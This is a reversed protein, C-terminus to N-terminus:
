VSAVPIADSTGLRAGGASMATAAVFARPAPLPIATEFGTRRATAVPQLATASAGGLVVWTAVETAGNWSAYATVGSAAAAVTVVPRDAPRASWPFRFARYSGKGDFTGDLLLRGDADFETFRPVNGWGVFANGNAMLRVSGQSSSLVRAPHVWARVLAASMAREDVDLLIGRSATEFQPPPGDAGDDYITMRGPGQWRADHQWAFRVGEGLRFDSRSGGLRWLVAGSGRDVKYVCWPHRASVLLNGDPGVDLSNIHFYDYPETPGKAAPLFSEFVDVHEASHWEFLLRGSAVDIEQIVGEIVLGEAHGRLTPVEGRITNFIVFLATGQPTLVFEHLDGSLGNVARVRAIERYSSDAIVYSGQGYGVLPTGEWWTLVPEGRYTAVALDTTSVGAPDPRCWVPEGQDDLILLGDPAVGNAPTCFILGPALGTRPGSM